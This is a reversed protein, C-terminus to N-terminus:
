SCSMSSRKSKLQQGNNTSWQKLFDKLSKAGSVGLMSEFHEDEGFDEDFDEYFDSNEPFQAICLKYRCVSLSYGSVTLACILCVAM